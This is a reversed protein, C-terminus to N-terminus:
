SLSMFLLTLHDDAGELYLTTEVGQVLLVGFALLCELEGEAVIWIGM